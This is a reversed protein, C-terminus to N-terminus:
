LILVFIFIEICMMLLCVSLCNFVSVCVCACVYVNEIVREGAGSVCFSACVNVWVCGCGCCCVNVRVCM